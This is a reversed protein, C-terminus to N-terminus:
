KEIEALIKQGAEQKRIAVNTDASTQNLAEGFMDLAKISGDVSGTAAEFAQRFADLQDVSYFESLNEIVDVAGTKNIRDFFPFTLSLSKAAEGSMESLANTYARYQALM